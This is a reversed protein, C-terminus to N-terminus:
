FPYQKPWDYKNQIAAHLGTLPSLIPMHGAGAIDKYSHGDALCIPLFLPAAM